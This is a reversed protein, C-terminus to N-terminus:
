IKGCILDDLLGGLGMERLRSAAVEALGAAKEAFRKPYRDRREPLLHVHLSRATEWLASDSWFGVNETKPFRTGHFQLAAEELCAQEYFRSWHRYSQRWWNPFEHNDGLGIFGANFRGVKREWDLAGSNHESLTLPAEPSVLPPEFFLVDSDVFLTGKCRAVAHAVADMKYMLGAPDWPCETEYFRGLFSARQALEYSTVQPIFRLGKTPLGTALYRDFLGVESVIIIPIEPYHARFTAILLFVEPASKGFALTSLSRPPEFVEIEPLPQSRLPEPLGASLLVQSRRGPM